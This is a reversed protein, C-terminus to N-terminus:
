AYITGPTFYLCRLKVKGSRESTEITLMTDDKLMTEVKSKFTEKKTLDIDNLFFDASESIGIDITGSQSEETIEISLSLIESGEKLYFVEAKDETLESLDIEHALLYGLAHIRNTKVM